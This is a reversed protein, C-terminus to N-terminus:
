EGHGQSATQGIASAPRRPVFEEVVADMQTRTMQAYEAAIRRLRQAVGVRDEALREFGARLADCQVGRIDVVCASEGVQEMQVTVKWDYSVALVPKALKHALIVGHLRSAVVVDALSIQALLESVEKYYPQPRDIDSELPSAPGALRAQLDRLTPLDVTDTCFFVLEHGQAKLWDVFMALETLYREYQAADKVPWCRPDAFAIPSIGVVLRDGPPAVEPVKCAAGFALDPCFRMDRRGLRARVHEITRQDRFSQFATMRLMMGFFRNSLPTPNTGYGVSLVVVTSGAMRALCTWKLLTYPHDWTGGYYDDLQGGGAVILLDTGKLISYSVVGHRWESGLTRLFYYVRGAIMVLPYMFTLGRLFRKLQGKFGAGVRTNADKATALAEDVSRTFTYRKAFLEFAAIRHRRETDPPNLTVAFLEADPVRLRVSEMAADLTAADGLNGWGGPNILGIRPAFSAPNRNMCSAIHKLAGRTLAVSYFSEGPLHGGLATARWLILVEYSPRKPIDPCLDKALATM